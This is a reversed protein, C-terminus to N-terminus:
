DVVKRDKRLGLCLHDDHLDAPHDVVFARPDDAQLLFRYGKTRVALAPRSVGM